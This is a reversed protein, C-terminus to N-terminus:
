IKSISKFPPYNKAESIDYDIATQFMSTLFKQKGKSPKNNLFIYLNHSTIYFTLPIVRNCFFNTIEGKLFLLFSFNIQLRIAYNSMYM